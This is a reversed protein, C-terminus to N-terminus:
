PHQDILRRLTAEAEEPKGLENLVRAQWVNADLGQPDGQVMQAALQEARDKDGAKIAQITTLRELAQPVMALNKRIRELDAERGERVPPAFLPALADRGGTKDLAKEYAAIARDTQRRKELLRGELLFGAALHPQNTEVERILRAAEDLRDNSAGPRD